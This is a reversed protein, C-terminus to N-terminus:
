DSDSAYEVICEAGESTAATSGIISDVLEIRVSTTLHDDNDHDDEDDFEIDNPVYVDPNVVSKSQSSDIKANSHKSESRGFAGTSFQGDGTSDQEYVGPASPPKANQIKTQRVVELEKAAQFSLLILNSISHFPM